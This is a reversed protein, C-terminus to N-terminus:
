RPSPDGVPDIRTVAADVGEVALAWGAERALDQLRQLHDYLLPRREARADSPRELTRTAVEAPGTGLVASEAVLLEGRGEGSLYASRLEIGLEACCSTLVTVHVGLEAYLTEGGLRRGALAFSIPLPTRSVGGGYRPYRLSPRPAARQILRPRHPPARDM